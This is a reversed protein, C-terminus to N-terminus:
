YEFDKEFVSENGLADVVVVRLSHRGREVGEEALDLTLRSDKSSYKFLVFKGDLTGRFSKIYSEGDAMKFEIKAQRAWANENQPVIRPPVNDLALEYCGLVNIKAIFWGYEYRGMIASSGGSTIRKLYLKSVDIAQPDNVKLSLEASHWLPLPEKGLRYRASIDGWREVSVNMVTTGFLERAPIYLNMGYDRVINDCFWYLVRGSTANVNIDGRCGKLVMSYNSVNGYLDSLRCEVNYLREESVALWGRDTGVKVARLPMNDLAYLRQFRDGREIYRPYDIWANILRTEGFSFNDMESEFLKEGDVFLEMRYIGYNNGTGNMYDLAKVGFAVEGWVCVTDQVCNDGVNYYQPTNGGAVVGKGPKPYVAMASAKPPRTDRIRNKYFPLPDYLEEGTSDRVEFHLHPGFSYGSNGAFALVEGRRVRFENPAFEMDVEFCEDKYQLARVRSAIGAPFRELHAYVTMYGNDHMVYLAQGYGGTQVKARCIYGDAVSRIPKGVVGQTKFDIGSHFHNSRLEGFSGSLYLDFDFPPCFSIEGQAVVPSFTVVSLISVLLLRLCFSM